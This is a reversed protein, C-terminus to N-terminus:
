QNKAGLRRSRDLDEDSDAMDYRDGVCCSVLSRTEGCSMSLLTSGVFNKPNLNLSLCTL